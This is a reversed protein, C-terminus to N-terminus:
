VPWEPDAKRRFVAVYKNGKNRTVKKSEETEFKMVRVCPDQELEQDPVREWLEKVGSSSADGDKKEGDQEEEEGVEPQDQFHRLIWRHYEEVDTITYLLGGPRLVYAYEANLSESIIRAKHKRAKFHPDPFCIFIKSLQHHGFFNPLFKMTNARIASINEYNGPVLATTIGADETEAAQQQAPTPSATAGTETKESQMAPTAISAGPSSATVPTKQKLNQQQMRLAHVRSSLYELVQIRIEM